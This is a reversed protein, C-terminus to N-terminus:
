QKVTPTASTSAATTPSPKPTASQKVGLIVTIVSSRTATQDQTVKYSEKRLLDTLKQIYEERESKLNKDEKYKITAEKYIKAAINGTTIDTFDNDKLIVAFKGATGPEAGGNLIEFSFKAKKVETPKHEDTPESILEATGDKEDKKEDGGFPWLNKFFNVVKDWIGTIINQGEKLALSDSIKSIQNEINSKNEFWGPKDVTVELSDIAIEGGYDALNPSELSFYLREGDIKVDKPDFYAQAVNWDGDKKVKQYNAIMYDINQMDTASQLDTINSPNPNFFSDKDTSFYGDGNIIVDNKPIYIKHLSSVPNSSATTAKDDFIYNINQGVKDIKIEKKDDITITQLSIAHTTMIDLKISNTWLETPKEDIVFVQSSIVFLTQNLVIRTIYNDANKTKDLLVIKYIGPEADEIKINLKMSQMKINSADTIGDDPIEKNVIKKDGKYIQVALIDEGPYANNDQKEINVIFPNKTVYTYFTHTGRMKKDITNFTDSNALTNGTGMNVIESPDIFYTATIKDVSPREIYETINKYKKVKQWFILGNDFQANKLNELVSNYLPKYVYSDKQNGKVGIKIEKPSGKFKLNVWVGEIQKSLLKLNFTVSNSRIIQQPVILNNTANNDIRESKEAGQIRSVKDLNKDASFIYTIKAGFPALYQYAFYIIAVIIVFFVGITVIKNRSIKM